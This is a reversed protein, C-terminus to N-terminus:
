RPAPGHALPLHATRYAQMGGRLNFVQTFGLQALQAAGQASRRGSRCVVVVRESREWDRAAHVLSALPVLSASPIRGLEGEYEDRERVDVLRADRLRQLDAPDIEAYGASEHTTESVSSKTQPGPLLRVAGEYLLIGLAMTAVFVVASLAGTSLSTLGPGPCYGALGWGIGFLGAGFIVKPEIDRRTPLHFSAGVLPAARRKVLRNATFYVAIAGAMVFALSPDWDGAVDLFATVKSPQTMGAMALGVAFLLGAAFSLAQEFRSRTIPQSTNM